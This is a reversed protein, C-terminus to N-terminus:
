KEAKIDRIELEIGTTGNWTNLKPTFVAALRTGERVTRGLMHGKNFAIANFAAGENQRLRFKLHNNGVVKPSLAELGRAGLRPEPNGQGFPAMGEMQRMLEMTVNELNVACDVSLRRVFGDKGIRRLATDSLRDRLLPVKEAAISIGAAYTHGGFAILIDACETLAHYLDFGPISRGSGKGAGDMLSILVAPRYFEDAIRSAVIGVVGPHWDKSALVIAGAASTDMRRCMGRAEEWIHEEVSQREKNVADIEEAIRAAEDRSGTTLLRFAAGANELRGSANIRPALAFGVNGVGVKRGDLGSVQKLAAVGPRLSASDRSLVELGHKVLARNEGSLQGMDAITGLTVLDLYETIRRDGADVGMLAQALKMAVGVGTLCSVSGIFDGSALSPHIVAHADPLAYESKEGALEHHDTIILDLGLARAAETERAASIGCDVTIVLGAGSARIKQLADANLGYGETMRDPIYWGADAGIDNLVHYLLAAGTVGDVDYDGYVVIKERGSVARRVRSVAKEMDRFVTPASLGSLECSLFSSASAFDNIGRNLMLRAIIPHVGAEASLRDAAGSDSEMLVWKM